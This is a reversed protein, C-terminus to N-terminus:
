FLKKNIDKLRSAAKGTNYATVVSAATNVRTAELIDGQLNRIEEQIAMQDQQFQHMELLNCAEKLSDARRERIFKCLQYIDSYNYFKAPFDKAGSIYVPNNKERRLAEIAETVAAEAPEVYKQNKKYWLFIALGGFLLMGGIGGVQFQGNSDFYILQHDGCLFGLFCFAFLGIFIKILIGWKKKAKNLHENCERLKQEAIAVPTTATKKKELFQLLEERNM